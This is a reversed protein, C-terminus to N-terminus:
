IIGFLDHLSADDEQMIRKSVKRANKLMSGVYNDITAAVFQSSDIGRLTFFLMPDNDFRAGIGYLVAAVHKCMYAWDPCSCSFHIEESSPFLGESKQLFIDKMEESIDGKLLMDISEVRETCKNLIADMKEKSVPDIEIEVKYPSPRSGQVMAKVIGKDIKLDVVTGNRVYRRGRELRYEYDAYRELNDCWAVGWWSKCINRGEIIVPELKTGKKTERLTSRKSNRQLESVTPQSYGGYYSSKRRM